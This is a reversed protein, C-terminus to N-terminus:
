GPYNAESWENLGLSEADQKNKRAVLYAEGWLTLGVGWLIRTVMNRITRLNLLVYGRVLPYEFLKTSYNDNLLGLWESRAQDNGGAMRFGKAAAADFARELNHGITRLEKETTGQSILYAKLALEIARGLLFQLVFVGRQSDLVSYRDAAAVMSLAHLYLENDLLQPNDRAAIAERM